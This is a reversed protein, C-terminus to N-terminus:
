KTQFRFHFKKTYLLNKNHRVEGDQIQQYRSSCHIGRSVVIVSLLMKREILRNLM